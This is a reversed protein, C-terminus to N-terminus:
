SDQAAGLAQRTLPGFTRRATSFRWTSRAAPTLPKLCTPRGSPSRGPFAGNRDRGTPSAPLVSLGELGDPCALEPAAGRCLAALGQGPQAALGFSATLHAQPDADVALVRWGMGALGAALNVACTTKGVGGKHNLCAIRIGASAGSYM